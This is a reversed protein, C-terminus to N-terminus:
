YAKYPILFLKSQFIFWFLLLQFMLTIFLSSAFAIPYRSQNKKVLKSYGIGVLFVYIFFMLFIPLAVLFLFPLTDKEEISLEESSPHFGVLEQYFIGAFLQAFALVFIAIGALLIASNMFNKSFNGTVLGIVLPQLIIYSLLVGFIMLYFSIWFQLFGANAENARISNISFTNFSLFYFLGKGNVVISTFFSSSIFALFLFWWPLIEAYAGRTPRTIFEPIFKLMSKVEESKSVLFSTIFGPVLLFIAYSALTIAFQTPSISLAVLLNNTISIAPSNNLFFMPFWFASFVIALLALTTMILKPKQPVNNYWLKEEVVEDVIPEFDDLIRGDIQLDQYKERFRSIFENLLEQADGEDMRKDLTLVFLLDAQREKFITRVNQLDLNEIKEGETEATMSYVASILGATLSVDTEIEKQSFQKSFYIQGYTTMVLLTKIMTEYRFLRSECIFPVSEQNSNALSHLHLFTCSVGFPNLYWIM